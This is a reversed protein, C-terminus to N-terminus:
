LGLLNGANEHFIMEYDKQSLEEGFVGGINMAANCIPFDTGFVFRGSGVRKVGYALMAYRFLGTGSLDLFVNDYKEMLELQALYHAKEGPHAFVINLKPTEKVIKEMDEITTPHANVVMGLEEALKFIEICEKSSYSLDGWGMMYPVLEGILKTRTNSLEECSERVFKPHIHIGPIYKDGYLKKLEFAHANLEHVEDFSEPNLYKIVSGCFKDIGAREIDSLFDVNADYFCLNEDESIFPHTHFDIIYM